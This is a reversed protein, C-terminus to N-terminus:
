LRPRLARAFAAFKADNEPNAPLTTYVVLIFRRGGALELIGGDHSVEDTDGTKHAFADGALWGQSLKGNWRQARLAAQLRASAPATGNAIAHLVAAADGAPHSNRGTAGRDDILPLAGSLKRRVETARLGFPRCAPGIRERGLVDILVNTAVNDSASLMEFCLQELTARYGAVFPSPADNATLNQQSVLAPQSWDLDGAACRVALALAIPLKIMSAPYIAREPELSSVRARGDLQQLVISATALGAQEALGSLEDPGTM